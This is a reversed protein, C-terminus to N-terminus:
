MPDPTDSGLEDDFYECTTGDAFAVRVVLDGADLWVKRVTGTQGAHSDRPNLVRVLDGRGLMSAEPRASHSGPAAM